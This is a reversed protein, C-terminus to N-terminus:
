CDPPRVHSMQAYVFPVALLAARRCLVCTSVPKPYCRSSCPAGSRIRANESEEFLQGTGGNDSQLRMRRGPANSDGRLGKRTFLVTFRHLHAVSHVMKVANPAFSVYCLACAAGTPTTGAARACPRRQGRMVPIRYTHSCLACGCEAPQELETAPENSREPRCPQM